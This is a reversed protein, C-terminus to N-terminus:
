KISLRRYQGYHRVAHQLKGSSEYLRALNYHADALTPDHEVASRYAEMAAEVRCLDELLVGYNFMLLPDPGCSAIGKKYISEAKRLDGQVHLLRGWNTWAAIQCADREVAREYLMMAAHRDSSEMELGQAFLNESELAAGADSEPERSSQDIVRLVGDERGPELGLLYQGDDVQWRADGEHIVVRDGVACLRLGSLPVTDPLRKRLDQLTRNVRRPPVDAEILARAARMVILDQFSFRLEQRRGRSPTAFGATVLSRIASRSVRLVREVDRVSFDKM